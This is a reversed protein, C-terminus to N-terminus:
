PPAPRATCRRARSRRRRWRRGSPAPGAGRPSSATSCPAHTSHGSNNNPLHIPHARRLLRSDLSPVRLGTYRPQHHSGIPACLSQSMPGLVFENDVGCLEAGREGVALAALLGQGGVLPSIREISQSSSSAEAYVPLSHPGENSNIASVRVVGGMSVFWVSGLWVLASSRFGLYARPHSLM